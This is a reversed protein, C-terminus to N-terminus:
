LQTKRHWFLVNELCIWVEESHLRGLLFVETGYQASQNILNM